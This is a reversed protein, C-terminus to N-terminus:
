SELKSRFIFLKYIIKNFLYKYKHQSGHHLFVLQLPVNIHTVLAKIM